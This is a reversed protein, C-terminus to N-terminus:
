DTERVGYGDTGRVGYGDTGRVGYGDTGRVGYGDTGRVGLNGEVNRPNKRRDTLCAPVGRSIFILAHSVFSYGMVLSSSPVGLVSAKDTLDVAITEGYRQVLDHFHREIVRP